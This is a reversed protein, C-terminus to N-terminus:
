TKGWKYFLPILIEDVLIKDLTDANIEDRM